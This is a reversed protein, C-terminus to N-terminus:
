IAAQRKAMTPAAPAVVGIGIALEETDHRGKAGGASKDMVFKVNMEPPTEGKCKLLGM